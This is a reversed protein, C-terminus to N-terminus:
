VPKKGFVKVYEAVGGKALAKAEALTTNLNWQVQGPALSMSGRAGLPWPQGGNGPEYVGKLELRELSLRQLTGGPAESRLLAEGNAHGELRRGAM